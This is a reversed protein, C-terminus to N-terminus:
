DYSVGSKHLRVFNRSFRQAVQRNVFQDFIHYLPLIRPTGAGVGTPARGFFAPYMETDQMEM